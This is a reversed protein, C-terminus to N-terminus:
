KTQSLVNLYLVLKIENGFFLMVHRKAEMSNAHLKNWRQNMEMLQERLMEANNGNLGAIMLEGTANLAQLAPRKEAIEQKLGQCL